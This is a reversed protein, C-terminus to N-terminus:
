TLTSLSKPQVIHVTAESTLQEKSSGLTFQGTYLVIPSLIAVENSLIKRCKLKHRSFHPVCFDTCLVQLNIPFTM